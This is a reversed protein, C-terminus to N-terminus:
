LATWVWLHFIGHTAKKITAQLTNFVFIKVLVIKTFNGVSGNFYEVKYYFFRVYFRTPPAPIKYITIELFPSYSFLKIIYESKKKPLTEM